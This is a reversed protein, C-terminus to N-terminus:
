TARMAWRGCQDSAAPRRIMKVILSAVDASVGARIVGLAAPGNLRSGGAINSSAAFRVAHSQTDIAM